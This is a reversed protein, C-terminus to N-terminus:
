EDYRLLGSSTGTSAGTSYPLLDTVATLPLYTWSYSVAFVVRQTTKKNSNM